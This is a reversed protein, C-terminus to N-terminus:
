DPLTIGAEKLVRLANGSELVGERLRYDFSMRGDLISERFHVNHIQLNAEQGLRALSVDHTSVAGCAGTRLLMVLIGRSAIAREESNTGLFIEDLLFLANGKAQRATELVAKLRQVEAYFYSIGRELSDKVRISTLVQLRSM